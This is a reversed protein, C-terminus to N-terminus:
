RTLSLPVGPTVRSQRDAGPLVYTRAPPPPPAGDVFSSIRGGKGQVGGEARGDEGKKM